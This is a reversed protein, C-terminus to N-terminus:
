KPIDAEEVPTVEIKRPFPYFYQRVVNGANYFILSNEDQVYKDATFIEDPKNGWAGEDWTLKYERLPLLQRENM